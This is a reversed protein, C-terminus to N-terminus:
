LTSYSCFDYCGFTPTVHHIFGYSVSVPPPTIHSQAVTAKLFWFTPPKGSSYFSISVNKSPKKKSGLGGQHHRTTVQGKKVEIALWLLEGFHVVEQEVGMVHSFGRKFCTKSSSSRVLHGLIILFHPSCKVIFVLCFM